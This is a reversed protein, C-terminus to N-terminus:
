GTTGWVGRFDEFSAMYEEGIIFKHVLNTKLFEELTFLSIRNMLFIPNNGKDILFWYNPVTNLYPNIHYDTAIEGATNKSRNATDARGPSDVTRKIVDMNDYSSVILFPGTMPSPDGKDSLVKGQEQIAQALALYGFAIDTAPRNATVGIDTPHATSCLAVGDPGANNGTTVFANVLVNAVVQEKTKTMAHALKKSPKSVKGYLDTYKAQMSIEFSIARMAVEYRKNYPTRFDQSPVARTEDVVTAMGFDGILQMEEFSQKTSYTTGVLAPYWKPMDERYQLVNKLLGERAELPTQSITRAM